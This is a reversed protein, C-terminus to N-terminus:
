QGEKARAADFESFPKDWDVAPFAKRLAAAFGKENLTEYTVDKFHVHLVMKSVVKEAKPFCRELVAQLWRLADERTPKEQLTGGVLDAPPQALVRDVLAEAVQGISKDIEQQLKERVRAQHVEVKARFAEIEKDFGVRRARLLVCGWPSGLPRVYKKRIEKLATELVADSMTSSREILNFTTKLRSNIEDSPALKVIASPLQVTHRNISCGKLGVDVYQIYPQFVRVQRCVDFKLPPAVALNEEVKRLEVTALPAVGIERAGEDQPVGPLAPPCIALLLVKAQEPVLRVANPTEDSHPQDEVYLAVPAFCWAQNDCVLLGVRLGPSQRVDLRAETLRRIGQVDGYGLRCVKEDCDLVVTVAKLSLRHSAEVMAAAVGSDIGPAAYVVRQGAKAIEAAMRRSDLASFVQSM